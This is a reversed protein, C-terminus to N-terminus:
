EPTDEQKQSEPSRRKGYKLRLQEPTLSLDEVDSRFSAREGRLWLFGWAYGCIMVGVICYLAALPAPATTIM